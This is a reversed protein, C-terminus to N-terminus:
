APEFEPAPATVLTGFVTSVFLLFSILHVSTCWICIADIKFLEAYILWLATGIGALSWVVRAVRVYQRQLQWAQPSQLIAMVAFFVLGLVAVPVGHIMSYVSTTVKLCDVAGGGAPCSLSTSSTYHEFTLYGSVGFGLGSLVVGLAAPWRPLGV